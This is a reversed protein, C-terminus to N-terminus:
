KTAAPNAEAAERLFTLTEAEDGFVAKARTWLGSAATHPCEDDDPAHHDPDDGINALARRHKVMADHWAGLETALDLAQASGIKSAMQHYVDRM